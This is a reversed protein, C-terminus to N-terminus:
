AKKKKRRLKKYAAERKMLDEKSVSLVRRMTREFRQAADPREEPHPVRESKEIAM